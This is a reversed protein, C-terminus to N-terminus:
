SASYKTTCPSMGEQVGVRFAEVRAFGVPVQDGNVDAAILGDEGLLASVGEDIDDAVVRLSGVPNRKGIPDEVLLGSWAGVMCATRLGAAPDDLPLGAAKQVSLAYRSAVQAYAAFDGYGSEVDKNPPKAIKQLTPLDLSITNTSECYTAPTTPKRGACASQDTTIRPPEAGTDRFVERLSKEVAELGKQDVPLDTDQEAKWSSFLTTRKSVDNFDMKACRQPGEDFGYQFATVRDFASGHANSGQFDSKGPSDRIFSLVGMVENLGQGTSIQFYKSSGEAVHRFYAGTFCDAQQELVIVQDDSRVTRARHQVAHGMEHALVAVVAMPGFSNDLEPLLTGRDWAILDDPPCYFANVVGATNEGCVQTGPGGADYSVLRKVPAFQQRHFAEPFVATWYDDIDAVANRALKDMPGNDTGEVPLPSEPAGPKPGSPGNTVPLGAVETTSYSGMTTPTGSIQQACGAVLAICTFASLATGLIRKRRRNRTSVRAM